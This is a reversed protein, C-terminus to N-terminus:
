YVTFIPEYNWDFRTYLNRFRGDSITLVLKVFM